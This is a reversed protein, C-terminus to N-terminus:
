PPCSSAESSSMCFRISCASAANWTVSCPWRGLRRWQQLRSSTRGTRRPLRVLISAVLVFMYPLLPALYRLGNNFQLRVYSIGACFLLLGVPALALLMFERTPIIPRKGRNWFPAALALLMLPCTLFLGYRYDFLLLRLLEPQPSTFGQYGIDIWEVPPMWNQGPLFPNGFSQYQYLWLLLIPGAAGWCMPDRTVVHRLAPTTRAARRSPM